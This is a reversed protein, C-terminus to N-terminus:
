NQIRGENGAAVIEREIAAQEQERGKYLGRRVDNYFSQVDRGSYVRKVPQAGRPTQPTTVPARGPATLTALDVPGRGNGQPSGNPPPAPPQQTLTAYENLFGVFFHRVREADNADFAERLMKGRVRGSFPDTQDLWALFPESTNIMQWDKVDRDLLAFVKQQSTLKVEKEVRGFGSEITELKQGVGRMANDVLNKAVRGIIDVLEPSWEAIEEQTLVSSSFPGTPTPVPSAPVAPTRNLNALLNELNEARESIETFQRRLRPVEANYKGQLVDYKHRWADVTEETPEGQPQQPQAPQEPTQSQAPPQPPLDPADEVTTQPQIAQPEAPEGAAKAMEEILRNAEDIQRQVEKPRAAV